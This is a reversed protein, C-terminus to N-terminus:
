RVSFFDYLITKDNSLNDGIINIKLLNNSINDFGERFANQVQDIKFTSKAVNLGTIPDIINLSYKQLNNEEINEFINNEENPQILTNYFNFNSYFYLYEIFLSGIPIEYNNKYSKIFALTMLFLSYSSIGGQYSKNLKKNYLFRKMIYVIDFIQPYLLTCEKIYDIMLESPIKELENETVFFTIDFFLKYIDKNNISNNNNKLLISNIEEFFLPTDSFDCNLKIVPVSASSIPMINKIYNLESKKLNEVLINMIKNIYDKEEYNKRLKVMIDVDSNEISLGSISSGYFSCQFEIKANHLIININEYIKKIYKERIQQLIKKNNNVKITNDIIEQSLQVINNPFYNNYIFHNNRYNRKKKSHFNFSTFRPYNSGILFNNQDSNNKHMNLESSNNMIEDKQSFYSKNNYKQSKYNQNQPHFQNPIILNSNDKMLKKIKIGMNFKNKQKSSSPYEYESKNKKYKEKEKEKEKEKTKQENDNNIENEIIIINKNDEEIKKDEEEKTSITAKDSILDIKDNEKNLSIIFNNTKNNDINIDINIDDEIYNNTLSNKKNKQKNKKKKIGEKTTPFLFFEKEKKKKNSKENEIKDTINSDQMSPEKNSDSINNEKNSNNNNINNNNEFAKTNELIINESINNEENIIKNSNEECIEDKNEKQIENLNEKIDIIEKKGNLNVNDNNNEDNGNEEKNKQENNNKNIMEDKNTDVIKNNKDENIINNNTEMNIKNIDDNDNETKEENNKNDGDNEENKDSKKKKKKKRRKKKKNSEDNNNSNNNNNIDHLLDEALKSKWYNNIIDAIGKIAFDETTFVINDKIFNLFLVFELEGRIFIKELTTLCSNVTTKITHKKFYSYNGIYSNRIDSDKSQKDCIIKKIIPNDTITKKIEDPRLTRIIEFKKEGSNKIFEILKKNNDILEDFKDYYLISIEEKYMKYYMFNIIICQEFYACLLESFTFEKKLWKPMKFNYFNKNSSNGHEEVTFTQSEIEIPNKFCSKDSIIQFTSIIKDIDELYHYSLTVVNNYENFFNNEDEKYNKIGSNLTVYRINDVLEQRRQEGESRGRTLMVVDSDVINFYDSFKPSEKNFFLFNLYNIIPKTDQPEKEESSVPPLPGPTYKFKIYPKSNNILVMEHLIDVIFHNKFSFYKFLQSISLSKLWSIISQEFNSEKNEYKLLKKCLNQFSYLSSSIQSHSQNFLSPFRDNNFLIPPLNM